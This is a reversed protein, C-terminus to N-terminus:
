KGMRVDSAHDVWDALKEQMHDYAKDATADEAEKDTANPHTEMYEEILEDHAEMFLEKSM